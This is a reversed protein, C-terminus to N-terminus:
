LLNLYKSSLFIRISTMSDGGSQRVQLVFIYARKGFLTEALKPVFSAPRIRPGGNVPPRSLAMRGCCIACSM